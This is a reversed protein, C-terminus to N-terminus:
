SIDCGGRRVEFDAVVPVMGSTLQDLLERQFDWLLVHILEVARVSQPCPPIRLGIVRVVDGDVDAADIM